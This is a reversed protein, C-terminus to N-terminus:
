TWRQTPSTAACNHWRGAITAAAACLPTCAPDTSTQLCTKSTFDTKRLMAAQETLVNQCAQPGFAIRYTGAAAHLPRLTRAEDSDSGIDAVYFSGEEEVV